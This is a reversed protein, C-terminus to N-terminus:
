WIWETPINTTSTLVNNSRNCELVLLFFGSLLSHCDIKTKQRCLVGMMLLLFYVLRKVTLKTRYENCLVHLLIQTSHEIDGFIGSIVPQSEHQALFHIFILTCCFYYNVPKIFSLFHYIKSLKKCIL